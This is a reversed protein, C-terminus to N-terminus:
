LIKMLEEEIILDLNIQRLQSYLESDLMEGHVRFSICCTSMSDCNYVIARLEITPTLQRLILHRDYERDPSHQYIQELISGPLQNNTEKRITDIDVFVVFHKQSNSSLM